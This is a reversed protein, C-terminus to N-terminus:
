QQSAATASPTITFPTPAPKIVEQLEVEYGLSTLYEGLFKGVAQEDGSVSPINMLKKTLEFLNMTNYNSSNNIWLHVCIKVSLCLNKLIGHLRDEGASM